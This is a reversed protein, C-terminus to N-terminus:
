RCLPLLEDPCFSFSVQLETLVLLPLPLPVELLPDDTNSFVLSM